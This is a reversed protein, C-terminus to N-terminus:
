HWLRPAAPEAAAPPSHSQSQLRRWVGPQSSRLRDKSPGFRPSLDKEEKELTALLEKAEQVRGQQALEQARVANANLDM